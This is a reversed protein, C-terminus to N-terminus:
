RSKASKTLILGIIVLSFASILKGIKYGKPVYKLDIFETEKKVNIARLSEPTELVAIIDKGNQYAVWDQNYIDRLIINENPNVIKIRISNPKYIEIKQNTRNKFLKNEYVFYNDIKETLKLQTNKLEYPAVIYKTNYEALAQVDPQVQKNLYVGMPPISLSYYDWYSGTLQWSHKYFNIQQLTNYGEILELDRIAAEKQPICRNICFIRYKEEDQSLLDYFKESIYKNNSHAPSTLKAWSLAM